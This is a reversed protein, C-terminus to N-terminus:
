ANLFPFLLHFFINLVGENVIYNVFDNKPYYDILEALSLDLLARQGQKEKLRVALHIFEYKHCCRLWLEKLPVPPKDKECFLKVQKISHPLGDALVVMLARNEVILLLRFPDAMIDTSIQIKKPLSRVRRRLFRASLKSLRSLGQLGIWGTRMGQALYGLLFGFLEELTKSSKLGDLLAFLADETAVVTFKGGLDIDVDGGRCQIVLNPLLHAMKRAIDWFDIDKLVVQKRINMINKLMTPLPDIEASGDDIGGLLNAFWDIVYRANDGDRLWRQELDYMRKLFSLTVTKKYPESRHIKYEKLHTEIESWSKDKFLKFDIIIGGYTPELLVYPLPSNDDTQDDKRIITVMSGEFGLPKDYGPTEPLKHTLDCLQTDIFTTLLNHTPIASVHGFPMFPLLVRPYKAGRGAAIWRQNECFQLWKIYYKRFWRYVEQDMVLVM